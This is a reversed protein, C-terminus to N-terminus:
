VHNRLSLDYPHPNLYTQEKIYPVDHMDIYHKLLTLPVILPHVNTRYSEIERLISAKADGSLHKKLFGLIHMLTDSNKKVTTKASLAEMYMKSYQSTFESPKYDKIHAVLQGLEQYHKRGHSLLLFKNDQHFKVWDGRKFRQQWLCQLRHYGFVRELFNERLKHDNLRGEEEVPLLPYAEIVQKAFLGQGNALPIGNKQYVKVRFAGCSPSGKKFLYGSLGDLSKIKSRTFKNIRDTWDEGSVPEVMNPNKLPGVLRVTKRPIGMGVEAEPCIPVYEFYKGLIENIYWHYKHQGDFRVKQGLLCSSTGIKIKSTM